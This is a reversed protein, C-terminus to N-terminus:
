MPLDGSAPADASQKRITRNSAQHSGSRAEIGRVLQKQAEWEVPLGILLDHLQLTRPQRGDLIVEIIDPALLTLRLLRCVYSYNLGESAALDEILSFQGNDMMRKWRWARTLAKLLTNDVQPHAPAWPVAGEPGLILKRAGRRKFKVPIYVTLTRGNRSLSAEKMVRGM